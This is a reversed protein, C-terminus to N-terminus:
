KNVENTANRDQRLYIKLELPDISFEELLRRISDRIMNASLNVEAFISKTILTAVRLKNKNTAFYPNGQSSIFKPNTPLKDFRKSDIQILMRCIDTYLRKWTVIDKFAQGRLIFGYPRKYCFDENLYHPVEKNLEKIIRDNNAGPKHTSENGSEVSVKTYGQILVSIDSALNDFQEMKQVYERKFAYGADLAGLDNHDINLWIDDSLALLNERVGELDTLIQIIRLKTQKNETM